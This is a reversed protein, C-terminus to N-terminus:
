TPPALTDHLWSKAPVEDKLFHVPRFLNSELALKTSPLTYIPMPQM